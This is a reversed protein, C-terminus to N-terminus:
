AAARRRALEELIAGHRERGLTFRTFCLVTLAGLTFSAISGFIGLNRVVEPDVHALTAGEPFRAAKVVLGAVLVGLGSAAKSIFMAAAFLLGEQREGTALEHEDTIAAFMTGMVTMGLIIATYLVLVGGALVRFLAAGGAEPLLGLLRLVVLGPM